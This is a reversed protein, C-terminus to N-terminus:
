HGAAIGETTNLLRALSFGLGHMSLAPHGRQRANARCSQCPHFAIFLGKGMAPTQAAGSM